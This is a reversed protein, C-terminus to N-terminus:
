VFMVRESSILPRTAAVGRNGRVKYNSYSQARKVAGEAHAIYAAEIQPQNTRGGSPPPEKSIISNLKRVSEQVVRQEEQTTGTLGMILSAAPSLINQYFQYALFTASVITSAGGLTQVFQDGRRMLSSARRSGPVRSLVRSVPPWVQRIAAITASTGTPTMGTLTGAVTAMYMLLESVGDGTRAAVAEAINPWDDEPINRFDMDGLMESAASSVSASRGARGLEEETIPPEDEEFTMRGRSM